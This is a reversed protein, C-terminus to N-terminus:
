KQQMVPEKVIPNTARSNCQSNSLYIKAGVAWIEENQATKTDGLAYIQLIIGINAM